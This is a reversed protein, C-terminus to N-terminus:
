HTPSNPTKFLGSKRLYRVLLPVSIVTISIRLPAFLKHIAYALVFTSTGAALKSQVLSESFGIKYLIAAMDIGSSVALYFMGLSMLSMCIHFSVGVAGYEKFIKKLQQTKSPNDEEPEPVEPEELGKASAQKPTQDVKHDAPADEVLKPAVAVSSFPRMQVTMTPYLRHNCVNAGSTFVSELADVYQKKQWSQGGNTRYLTSSTVNHTRSFLSKGNSKNSLNLSFYNVRTLQQQHAIIFRVSDRNKVSFMDKERKERKGDPSLAVFYGCFARSCEFAHINRLPLTCTVDVVTLRNTKFQAAAGTTSNFGQELAKASLRAGRCVFMDRLSCVFCPSYFQNILFLVLTQQPREYFEIEVATWRASRIASWWYRARM